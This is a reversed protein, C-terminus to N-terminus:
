YNKTNQREQRRKIFEIYSLYAYEPMMANDDLSTIYPCENVLMEMMEAKQVKTFQIATMSQLSKDTEDYNFTFNIKAKTINTKVVFPIVFDFPSFLDEVEEQTYTQEMYKGYRVRTDQEWYLDAFEIVNKACSPMDTGKVIWGPIFVMDSNYIKKLYQTLNETTKKSLVYESSLGKVNHLLMSIPLVMVNYTSTMESEKLREDWYNEEQLHKQVYSLLTIQSHEGGNMRVWDVYYKDLTAIMANKFKCNGLVTNQMISQKVFQSVDKPCNMNEWDEMSINPFLTEWADRTYRIMVLTEKKQEKKKFLGM